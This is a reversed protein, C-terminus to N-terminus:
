SFFAAQITEVQGRFSAKPNIFIDERGKGAERNFGKSKYNSPMDNVSIFHVDGKQVNHCKTRDSVPIKRNRLKHILEAHTVEPM